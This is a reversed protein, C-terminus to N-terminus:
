RFPPVDFKKRLRNSIDNYLASPKLGVFHAISPSYWDWSRAWIKHVFYGSAKQLRSLHTFPDFKCNRSWVTTKMIADESAEQDLPEIAMAGMAAGFFPEDALQGTRGQHIRGLLQSELDYFKRVRDFFVQAQPGQEFYFVGSNMQVIHPISLRRCLESIDFGYWTGTSRATGELNFYQGSLKAWHRDMDNKVLISDSDIYLSKAYPSAELLRIKNACGIFKDDSPLLVLNDFVNTPVRGLDIAEDHILCVPRSSDNLKLSLALNIALQLYLDNGCALTIYGLSTM